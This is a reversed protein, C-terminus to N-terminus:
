SLSLLKPQGGEVIEFRFKCNIIDGEPTFDCPGSAGTYNVAKGAALLKMGEIASHVAAGDGQSIARIADHVATGTVQGSKAVALAILSVHDYVQCSYPDPSQTGLMKQVAAYAPSDLDPSPAFTWLGATLDPQLSSLVTPTAAYAPAM